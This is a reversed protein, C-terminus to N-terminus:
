RKLRTLEETMEDTTRLVQVNAAFLHKSVNMDVFAQALDRSAADPSTRNGEALARAEPSITVSAASSPQGRVGFRAIDVAAREVNSTARRMGELAAGQARGVGRTDM